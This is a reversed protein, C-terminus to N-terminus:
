SSRHRGSAPGTSTTDLGTPAAPRVAFVSCLGTHFTHPEWCKVKQQECAQARSPWKLRKGTEHVARPWPFSRDLPGSFRKKGRESSLTCLCANSNSWTGQQFRRSVKVPKKFRGAPCEFRCLGGAQVDTQDHGGQVNSMSAFSRSFVLHGHFAGWPGHFHGYPRSFAWIVTFIGM